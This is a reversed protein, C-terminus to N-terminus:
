PISKLIRKEKKPIQENSLDTFRESLDQIARLYKMLREERVEHSGKMQQTVLQSDSYIMFWTAGRERAVKIGILVHEYEVENNSSRFDLRVFIKIKNGSPSILVVGASTEKKSTAGDVFIRWMEALKEVERVYKPSTMQLIARVKELNVEIGRETVM